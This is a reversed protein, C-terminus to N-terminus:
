ITTRLGEKILFKDFLEEPFDGCVNSLGGESWFKKLVTKIESISLLISRKDFPVRIISWGDLSTLKQGARTKLWLIYPFGDATVELVVGVKYEKDSSSLLRAIVEDGASLDKKLDSVFTLTNEKTM